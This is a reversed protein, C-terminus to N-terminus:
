GDIQGGCSKGGWLRRRLGLTTDFLGLLAALLLPWGFLAALVYFVIFVPLPRKLRRAAAHFVALGALCFPVALLIMVTVGFLRANGGLPAAAAGAAFLVPMWLPLGLAAIDPSPRQNAGFRALVGQALIGNTVVIMMWVMASMGPLILALIRIIAARDAVVTGTTEQLRAFVPDLVGRVLTELGHPGGALVVGLGTGVLALGTLWAALLGPPYWEVAGDGRRRRLLAQRVLVVAPVAMVAAFFVASTAGAAALLIVTAVLAALGAAGAGLWLGPTFLSLQAMLILILSALPEPARTLAILYFGAGIAGCLAAAAMGNRSM